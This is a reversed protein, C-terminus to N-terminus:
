ARASPFVHFGDETSVWGLDTGNFHPLLGQDLEKALVKKTRATVAIGTTHSSGDELTSRTGYLVGTPSFETATMSTEGAEQAWYEKGTRLNWVTTGNETAVAALRQRTDLVPPAADESLSTEPLRIGPGTALPERSSIKYSAFIREGPSLAGKGWRTYVTDGDVKLVRLDSSTREGDQVHVGRPPEIDETSWVKKGSALEYMALQSKDGDGKGSLVGFCYKGAFLPAGVELDAVEKGDYVGSITRKKGSKGGTGIPTATVTGGGTPSPDYAGRKRSEVLHGDVIYLGTGDGAHRVTGLVKGSPDYVTISVSDKEKSLGDSPTTTVTRVQVAPTGGHWTAGAVASASVKVSTRVAGTARDRFELVEPGPEKESEEVGAQGATSDILDYSAPKDALNKRFVLTEGLDYPRAVSNGPAPLSWAQKKALGPIAPGRYAPGAAAPKGGGDRHAGSGSPGDGDDGGSGCGVAMGLSWVVGVAAMTRRLEVDGLKGREGPVAAGGTMSM